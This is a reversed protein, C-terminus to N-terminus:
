GREFILLNYPSKVSYSTADDYWKYVTMNPSVIDAVGVLKYHSIYNKFWGFIFKDSHPMIAWSLDVNVVVIYKPQASEIEKIMNKQMALAYDHQEMLGYTYIYGTASRRQSYFYIQPESGFVAIKDNVTSRSKIFKAIELSEPFPNRGHIARALKIPDGTFIYAYEKKDIIGVLAAVIFLASGILYAYQQKLLLFRRSNLFEIFVGVLISVAPLLTVFYHPTFYYGPCVSLFSFLTFLLIFVKHKKLGNWFLTTIIGFASLIWFLYFSGAVYSFSPMFVDFAASIPVQSVYKSAYKFTWFWFKDFAGVTFIWVVIVILPVAAGVSFISLNLMLRKLPHAPRSSLSHYLIYLVAFLFFFIGPQKMLFALGFLVGSGFYAKLTNKDLASLLLLVGGLATLVVFHTAHAAFGFVSSNLSLVAYTGSAALAAPGSMLKRALLFVLLITACNVVMFGLHIGQITQGFISMILAYMLFTGPLKMNYAETYPPVGQLMLQGMYAYEGEDRELPLESLRVRVFIVFIIILTLCLWNKSFRQVKHEGSEKIMSKRVVGAKAKKAEM